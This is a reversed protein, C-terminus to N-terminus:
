AALKEQQYKFHTMHVSMHQVSFTQCLIDITIMAQAKELIINSMFM